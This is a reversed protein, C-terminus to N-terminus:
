ARVPGGQMVKTVTPLNGSPLPESEAVLDPADIDFIRIQPSLSVQFFDIWM